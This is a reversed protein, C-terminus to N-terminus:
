LPRASSQLTMTRSTGASTIYIVAFAHSIPVSTHLRRVQWEPESDSDWIQVSPSFGHGQVGERAIRDGLSLCSVPSHCDHLYSNFSLCPPFLFKAGKEALASQVFCAQRRRGRHPGESRYPSSSFHPSPLWFVFSYSSQFFPARSSAFDENNIFNFISAEM